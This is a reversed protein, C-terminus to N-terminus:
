STFIIPMESGFPGEKVRFRMSRDNRRQLRLVAMRKFNWAPLGADMRQPRQRCRAAPVSPFGDRVQHHRVGARGDTQAARPPAVPRTKLAHKMQEVHPLCRSHRPSKSAAAGDPHHADRGVAILPRSGPTTAARQVNRESYFAPTPWCGSPNISGMPCRRSASSCRRSRGKDNGATTVPRWWWCRNPISWPKHTTTQEFGGGAVKM